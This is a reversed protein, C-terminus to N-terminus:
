EAHCLRASSILSPLKWHISLSPAFRENDWEKRWSANLGRRSLLIDMLNSIDQSTLPSANRIHLAMGIVTALIVLVWQSRDFTAVIATSEHASLVRLMIGGLVSSPYGSTTAGTRNEDSGTDIVWYSSNQMSLTGKSIDMATMWVSRVAACICSASTAFGGLLFSGLYHTGKEKGGLRPPPPLPPYTGKSLTNTDLIFKYIKIISGVWYSITIINPVSCM